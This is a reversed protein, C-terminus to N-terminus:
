EVLVPYDKSSVLWLKDLVERAKSLNKIGAGGGRDWDLHKQLQDREGRPLAECGVTM